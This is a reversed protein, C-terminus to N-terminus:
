FRWQAQGHLGFGENGPLAVYETERYTFEFGFRLSKTVDYIVNAFITDNYRVQAVNLDRDLPDDVGYGWHTHVCPTLYYYVEAWGGNARISDFTASNVTQLIGGGYTGLGQGTFVEGAFGWNENVRWRIDGAGGWVNADVRVLPGLDTSRVQGVVGSLGVEIPRAPVLGVQEIPGASWAARVEVNPWGNDEALVDNNVVTPNADSIGATVTIQEEASLHYFRELRAQGRYLGANGSAALFSFPLVNPLVPAFIDLQLGGAFRWDENKLEGFAQYPLIGYRDAAISDNYLAVAILGGSEFEGIRPGKGALYLSTSRGHIDFTDDDFPGSPALFFPTGPAVPRASNYLADLTM